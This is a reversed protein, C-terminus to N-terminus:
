HARSDRPQPKRLTEQQVGLERDRANALLEEAQDQSMRPREAGGSGAQPRPDQNASESDSGGGGGESGGGGGGGGGGGTGEPEPPQPPEPPPTREEQLRKQALELNWKADMDGRALRLAERYSAAAQRMEEAREDRGVAASEAAAAYAPELRTNGLNYHARQSVEPEAARAAEELPPRAEEYRRRNLLVTGLDYLPLPDGPRSYALSRYHMVSDAASTGAGPLRGFQGCAGALAVAVVAAAAGVGGRGIWPTKM